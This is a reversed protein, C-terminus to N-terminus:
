LTFITKIIAARQFVLAGASTTFISNFHPNDLKSEAEPTRKRKKVGGRPLILDRRTALLV